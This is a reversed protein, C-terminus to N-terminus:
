ELPCLALIPTLKKKSKAKLILLQAAAKRGLPPPGLELNVNVLLTFLGSLVLLDVAVIGIRIDHITHCM